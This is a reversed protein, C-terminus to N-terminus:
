LKKKKVGIKFNPMYRRMEREKVKWYIMEINEDDNKEFDIEEM